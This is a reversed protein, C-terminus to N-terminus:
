SQAGGWQQQTPTQVRPQSQEQTETTHAAPATERAALRALVALDGTAGLWDRLDPYLGPHSVLDAWLEPVQACEYLQQAALQPHAVAQGPFAPQQQLQPFPQGPPM